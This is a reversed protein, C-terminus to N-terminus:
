SCKGSVYRNELNSICPNKNILELRVDDWSLFLPVRENNIAKIAYLGTSEGDNIDEYKKITKEILERSSKVKSNINVRICEHIRSIASIYKRSAFILEVKEPMENLVKKKFDKDYELDSRNTYIKTQFELLRSSPNDIWRSNNKILHIALGDHQVHNRLAEMFRYEFANDYEKNTEKKIISVLDVNCVEIQKYIQDLYLKTSTLLNVIRRNFTSRVDFYYSYNHSRRLMNSSSISLSEKELELYNSIIIEYKEEISMAAKLVKNAKNLSQFKNETIEIEPFDGLAWTVLKFDM